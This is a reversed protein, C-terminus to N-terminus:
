QLLHRRVDRAALDLDLRLRLRRRASALRCSRRPPPPRLPRPGARARRPPPAPAARAARRGGAPHGPVGRSGTGIITSSVYAPGALSTRRPLLDWTFSSSRPMVLRKPDRMALSWMSRTT